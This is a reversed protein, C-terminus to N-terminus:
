YFNLIITVFIDIIKGLKENIKKEIDNSNKKKEDSEDEEKNLSQKWYLKAEEIIQFQSLSKKSNTPITLSEALVNDNQHLDASKSKFNENQDINAYAKFPNENSVELIQTFTKNKNPRKIACEMLSHHKTKKPISPSFDFQDDFYGPKGGSLLDQGVLSKRELDDKTKIIEKYKLIMLEPSMVSSRRPKRFNGTGLETSQKVNM